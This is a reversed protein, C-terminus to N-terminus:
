TRWRRTPATPSWSARTGAAVPVSVVRRETREAGLKAPIWPADSITHIGQMSAIVGLQAFRAVDAPTVHQAHEIRWRLASRDAGAVGSTCDLVERNARDGIAHTALQFGHKIALAAVGELSEPRELPWDRVARCTPTRSSCGPATRASRATSRRKIARVTLYGNGYGSMKYRELLSDMRALSEGRVM